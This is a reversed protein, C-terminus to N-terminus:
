LWMCVLKIRKLYCRYANINEHCGPEVPSCTFDESLDPDFKAFELTCPCSELYDPNINENTSAHWKNCWHKIANKGSLGLRGPLFSLLSSTYTINLNQTQKRVVIISIPFQFRVPASTIQKFSFFGNNDDTQLVHFSIRIVAVAFEHRPIWRSVKTRAHKQFLWNEIFFKTEGSEQFDNNNLEYANWKGNYVTNYDILEFQTQNKDIILVDPEKYVSPVTYIRIFSILNCVYSINKLLMHVTNILQIM